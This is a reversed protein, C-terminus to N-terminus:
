RLLFFLDAALLPIARLLPPTLPRISHKPGISLAIALTTATAISVAGIFLLQRYSQSVSDIVFLAFGAVSFASSIWLVKPVIIYLLLENTGTKDQAVPPMEGPKYAPLFWAIALGSLSVVTVTVDFPEVHLLAFVAGILLGVLFIKEFLPAYNALNKM